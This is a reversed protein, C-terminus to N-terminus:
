FMKKISGWFPRKKGHREELMMEAVKIDHEDNIDCYKNRPMKYAYINTNWYDKNNRFIDYKGLYINGDLQYTQPIEQRNLQRLHGPFWGKICKNDPVPKAVGLPVDSKCVSVVFDANKQVAFKAAKLIDIGTVLPNTCHLMQVMDWKDGWLNFQLRLHYAIADMVHSNSDALERPRRWVEISEGAAVKAIEDGDTSVVITDFIGADKAADIAWVL